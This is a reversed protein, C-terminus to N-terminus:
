RAYGLNRLVDDSIDLRPATIIIHMASSRDFVMDLGRENIIEQLATYIDDQIPRMLSERMRFLEGDQGFYRRRLENAAREKAIIEEERQVRMAESLFVLETQYDRYLQQVEQMAAEVEAQWRRSVQNLQEEATEFRPINRMIYEMDVMAFRQANAGVAMGAIICLTLILKKM